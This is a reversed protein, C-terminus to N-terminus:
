EAGEAARDVAPLFLGDNQTHALRIFILKAHRNGGSEVTFFYDGLSGPRDQASGLVYFDGPSLVVEQTLKTFSKRPRGLELNLVGETTTYRRQAEGYHLEPVLELRVRGDNEPMAKVAFMGQGLEFTEGQLQGDERYLPAVSAYVDSAAIEWRRRAPLRMQQVRVTPRGDFKIVNMQSADPGQDPSPQSGLELAQEVARPLHGTVIGSRFGNEALCRRVAGALAQENVEQWVAAYLASDDRRFHFALVEVVVSDPPLRPGKLFAQGPRKTLPQWCGAALLLTLM